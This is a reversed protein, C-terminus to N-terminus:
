KVDENKIRSLNTLWGVREMDYPGKDDHAIESFDIVNAVKKKNSIPNRLCRGLRQIVSRSKGETGKDASFLIINNLDPIDIGQSVADCTILIDIEKRKFRELNSNDTESFYNKFNNTYKMIIEAVQYAYKKEITFIITSKLLEPNIRLHNEFSILKDEAGKHIRAIQNRLAQEAGKNGASQAGFSKRILEKKENLEDETLMYDLAEYSFECLIGRKIADEIEFKYIIEGVSGFLRKTKDKKFEGLDPTASLGLKFGVKKNFEELTDLKLDTGLNHVEDYILITRSLLDDDLEKLVNHVDNISVILGRKHSDLIFDNRMEKQGTKDKLIQFKMDELIKKSEPENEVDIFIKYWQALLDTGNMTIIFQDIQGKEFLKCIIKQATRTKGTGTAMELIGNKHELFKEVAEDQHRYKHANIKKINEDEENYEQEEDDEDQDQKIPRKLPAKKRIYEMAEGSLGPLTIFGLDKETDPSNNWHDKLQKLIKEARKADNGGDWSKYVTVEDINHKFASDSENASGNFAIGYGDCFEFYGKKIHYLNNAIRDSIIEESFRNAQQFEALSQSKESITNQRVWDLPINIQIELHNNAILYCLLKEKWNQGLGKNEKKIGAAKLLFNHMSENEIYKLRENEDKMNELADITTKDLEPCCMLYIKVDNKILHEVSSIYTLLASSKFFGVNRRYVRCESLCPEIFDRGIQIGEQKNTYEIELNKIKDSIM